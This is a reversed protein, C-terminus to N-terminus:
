REDTAGKLVSLADTIIGPREREVLGERTLDTM